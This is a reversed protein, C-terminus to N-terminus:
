PTRDFSGRYGYTGGNEEILDWINNMEGRVIALTMGAREIDMVYAAPNTALDCAMVDVTHVDPKCLPGGSWYWRGGIMESEKEIYKCVYSVARAYDGYLPMATSFGLKWDRINYVIRAGNELHAAKVDGSCKVPRDYGPVGILTGSDALNLGNGTMLGHFHLAGDKHHEPILVYKLGARQVRNSLFVRLKPLIDKLEYRNCQDPSVTLTVFYDFKNALAIERIRARARRMARDDSAAKKQRKNKERARDAGAIEWGRGFIPRNCAMLEFKGTAAYIKLRGFSKAGAESVGMGVVQLAKDAM